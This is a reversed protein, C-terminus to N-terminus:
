MHVFDSPKVKFLIVNARQWVNVKFTLTLSGQIYVTFLIGIHMNSSEMEFENCIITYVLLIELFELDFHSFHGQLDFDVVGIKLVLRSYGLICTQHLNPSELGFRHRTVARVLRIESFELDFKALHGQLDIDLGM